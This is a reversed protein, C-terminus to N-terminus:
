SIHVYLSVLGYCIYIMLCLCFILLSGEFIIYGIRINKYYKILKHLFAYKDSIKSLVKEHSVIYISVLYIGINIVNLLMFISLILFYFALLVISPASEDLSIGYTNLLEFLAKM